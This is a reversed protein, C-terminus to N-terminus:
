SAPRVDILKAELEGSKNDNVIVMLGRAPTQDWEPRDIIVTTSDSDDPAVPIFDFENDTFISPTWPNFRASLPM